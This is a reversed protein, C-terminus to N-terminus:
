ATFGGDIPLSVGKVFAAEPSCLYLGGAAVEELKGFRGMPHAARVQEVRAQDDKLGATVTKQVLAAV